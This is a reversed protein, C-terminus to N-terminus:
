YFFRIPKTLFDDQAKKWRADFDALIKDCQQEPPLALYHGRVEEVAQVFEDISCNCLLNDCIYDTSPLHESKSSHTM